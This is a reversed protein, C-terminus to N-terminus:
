RLSNMTPILSRCHMRPRASGAHGFMLVDMDKRQALCDDVSPSHRCRNADWVKEAWDWLDGRLLQGLVETMNASPGPDFLVHIAFYLEYAGESDGDIVVKANFPNGQLEGLDPPTTVIREPIQFAGTANQGVFDDDLGLLFVIGAAALAGFPGAVIGALTAAGAAPGIGAGSASDAGSAGAIKEGEKALEVFKDQINKATEDPKGHDFEYAMVKITLPNPPVGVLLDELQVVEDDTDIGEFQFKRVVPFGGLISAAIVFYPEDHPSLEDSDSERVCKFGVFVVRITTSSIAQTVTGVSGDADRVQLQGGRYDRTASRGSFTVDSTPFGFPGNRGGSELYHHHIAAIQLLERLSSNSSGLVAQLNRTSSTGTQRLGERLSYM